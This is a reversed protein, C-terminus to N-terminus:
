VGKFITEPDMSKLRGYFEIAYRDTMGAIFDCIVRKQQAKDGKLAFYVEQFDDPMLKFGDGSDINEFITKVIDKGRTRVFCLKPSDIQTLYTIQKLIEIELRIKPDIILYSLMPSDEDYHCDKIGNIFDDILISMLETRTYGNSKILDSYDKAAKISEIVSVNEESKIDIINAFRKTLIDSVNKVTINSIERNYDANSSANKEYKAIKEFSKQIKTVLKGLFIKNFCVLDIPSLFGAKFSDELDYTSYAIDDAYDMVQCEITRIKYDSNFGYSQKIAKLVEFESEYYGKMPEIGSYDSPILDDYKLISLISRYSFNFGLRLDINNLIDVSSETVRERKELKTIIRLTQANGEFGGYGKMCDNLAEEGQHGFPPHGLDHCIGALQALDVNIDWGFKNNVHLALGSAVQAVELSHTLRNRFFDSETGPFLQTKGQLRRFCPSHIVRSYDRRFPSRVDRNSKTLPEGRRQGDLEPNYFEKV